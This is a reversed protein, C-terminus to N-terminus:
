SAQTYALAIWCHRCMFAYCVDDGWGIDMFDVQAIFSMLMGCKPCAPYSPAQQWNPYGGVTSSSILGCVSEVPLLANGIQLRPPRGIWDAPDEYEREAPVEMLVESTGHLDVRTYTRTGPIHEGYQVCTRCAAIRLRKADDVHAGHADRALFTLRPNTLDFDFFNVLMDGCSPCAQEHETMQHADNETTNESSGAIPSLRLCQLDCLDRRDGNPLLEWGADLTSPRKWEPLAVIWRRVADDGIWAAVAPRVQLLRDRVLPDAKWYICGPVLFGADILSMLHPALLHPQCGALHKPLDLFIPGHDRLGSQKLNIAIDMARSADDADLRQLYERYQEREKGSSWQPEPLVEAIRLLFCLLPLQPGTPDPIAEQIGTEAAIRRLAEFYISPSHVALYLASSVGLLAGARYVGEATQIHEKFAAIPDHPLSQGRLQFVLAALCVLPSLSADPVFEHRRAAEAKLRPQLSTLVDRDNDSLRAHLNLAQVLWHRRRGEFTWAVHLRVLGDLPTSDIM